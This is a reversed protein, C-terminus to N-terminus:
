RPSVKSLHSGHIIKLVLHIIVQSDGEVILQCINHGIALKIGKILSWLETANNKNLGLYCTTIHLIKGASDRLVEGFGVPGPNGKSSGDFNLKAFGQPPPSWSLPICSLNLLHPPPHYPHGPLNLKWASFILSKSPNYQM